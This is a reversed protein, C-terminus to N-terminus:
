DYSFNLKLHFIPQGLLIFNNKQFVGMNWGYIVLTLVLSVLQAGGGYITDRENSLNV